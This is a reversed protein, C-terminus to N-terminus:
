RSACVDAGPSFRAVDADALFADVAASLPRLLRGRRSTLASYVPRVAPGWVRATEAEVVLDADAGHREAAMRALECWTVAGDNALHWIGCEGDILLDLTADALDPVYTPSVISDAPARFPEARLLQRFAAALFNYDDWPGFFASTRIVLADPNTALVSREAQAKSEGYVNLPRPEDDETYPRGADGDFVLDSSFTVFRAGSRACAEALNVAGEVNARWCGARDHEAADVRVYGAANVVAWPRVTDVVARVRRADSIDADRRGVLCAALGRRACIRPLAAGLTGTAGVILIPRPPQGAHPARRRPLCPAAGPHLREPRRWWGIGEAAPHPPDEGTALRRIQSALATTRPRAGRVDFAGPEYYGTDRTVLSNWNFSGLLAWATVGRVDAGGTRAAEAGSWAEALWRMQEERTCGLHVETIALPIRYRRWASLLHAEHGAIGRPCGRVADSDAYAIFGNGGHTSAPHRDLREDLYRDSTVYYNLGLIDPRCPRELLVREDEDRMGARALFDRMPHSADVRGTLLDWTLWRRDCEHAAQARTAPTGFTCGCDETQVLRASPNVDRIARMAACIGHVQNLLARVYLRDSRGHPFWRGYLGSFRATTLPENIPTYDTVWPYRRAVAAAFQAFLDPFREDILSTYAPGSGHHLLGVVPTLGLRRLCELREDSWRWDIDDISSPALREWLVPYRLTRVGLAAFATLDEIRADHGSWALQDFWRNGVRNVTCEVGGWMELRPLAPTM